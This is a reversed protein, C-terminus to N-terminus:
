SALEDGRTVGRFEFRAGGEDSETARVAWGHADAIEAVIALGFGTGGEDSSVGRDFVQERVDEPIGAGDDEVYFGPDHEALTGVRVTLADDTEPRSSTSGHEVADDPADAVSPEVSSAGDADQQAQSAPSTSGHEVADEPAQSRPSTSGHEVANRFCNEFLRGLRDGDGRISYTWDTVLTAAGTDVANWAAEAQDVGTIWALEDIHSGERAYTLVEDVIAEIRDHMEAVEELESEDGSRWYLELRSQAVNLPNRLDHSLIGAFEELRENQRDLERERRKQESVDVTVGVIGQARGAEDYWPAKTTQFFLDQGNPPQAHEIRDRIPEGSEIVARDDAVAEAAKDGEYLDFDTKGVVDEPSHLIKGEPSEMFPEVVDESVLVHRSETDKFYVSMPVHEVLSRLMAAEDRALSDTRHGPPEPTPVDAVLYGTGAREDVLLDVATKFAAGDADTCHWERAEYNGGRAREVMTEVPDAESDMWELHEEGDAGRGRGRLEETIDTVLLDRVTADTLDTTDWGWRDYFRENADRLALTEPDFEVIAEDAFDALRWATSSSARDALREIQVPLVTALGEGPRVHAARADGVIREVVPRELGEAVVVLAVTRDAERTWEYDASSPCVICDVETTSGGVLTDLGGHEVVAVADDGSLVAALRERDDPAGVVATRVPEDRTGQM